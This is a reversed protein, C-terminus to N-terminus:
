ANWINYDEKSIDLTKIDKCISVVGEDIVLSKLAVSSIVKAKGIDSFDITMKNKTAYSQKLPQEHINLDYLENSADVTSHNFADAMPVMMTCPLSWGFCRTIVNAYAFIFLEKTIKDQPFENPYKQILNRVENWENDLDERYQNVEQIIEPEQLQEIESDSWLALLDPQPLVDM